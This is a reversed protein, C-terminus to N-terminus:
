RLKLVQRGKYEEALKLAKAEHGDETAEMALVVLYRESATKHEALSQLTSKLLSM